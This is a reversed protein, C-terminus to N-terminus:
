FVGENLYDLIDDSEYMMVNASTDILFPVQQKGGKKILEKKYEESESINREEYSSMKGLFSDKVKECFPCNNSTYLILM